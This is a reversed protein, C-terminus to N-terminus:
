IPQNAKQLLHLVTYFKNMKAPHTATESVPPLVLNLKVLSALTTQEIAPRGAELSLHLKFCLDWLEIKALTPNATALAQVFTFLPDNHKLFRAQELFAVKDPAAQYLAHAASAPDQTCNIHAAHLHVPLSTLEKGM